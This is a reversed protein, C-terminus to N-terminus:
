QSIFTKRSLPRRYPFHTMIKNGANMTVIWKGDLFYQDGIQIIDGPNLPSYLDSDDKKFIFVKEKQKM